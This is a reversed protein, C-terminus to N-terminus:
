RQDPLRELLSLPAVITVADSATLRTEPPPLAIPHGGHQLELVTVGRQQVLDGVVAGDLWTGPKVTVTRRAFFTDNVFFAESVNELVAAAALTPSALDSTSYATHIGFLDGLKVALADSFVRLVVHVDPNLNRAELGVQVNVQDDSTIALVASASAIGAQRLLDPDRADGPLIEVESLDRIMKTFSRGANDMMRNVDQEPFAGEEDRHIVVIRRPSGTQRRAEHLLRVARYGVKGLGCIIVTGDGGVLDGHAARHLAEISPIDGLVTVRTQAGDQATAIPRIAPFQTAFEALKQGKPLVVQTVGVLSGSVPLVYELNRVLASAALTPAALKSHSFATSAGFAKEFGQDFDEGFARLIVRVNKNAERAALAIELNILDGDICAIVACAREVGAQRLVHPDRADGQIVPVRLDSAQGVYDSAANQQIAVVGYGGATLRTVVRYGMRGLGCVIVHDRLTQALGVQRAEPRRRVINQIIDLISQAFLVYFLINFILIARGANDNALSFAQLDLYELTSFALNTLDHVGVKAVNYGVNVILIIGLLFLAIFTQVDYLSARLRQRLTYEQRRIRRSTRPLTSIQVM